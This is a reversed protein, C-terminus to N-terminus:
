KILGKIEARCKIGGAVLETVIEIARKSDGEFVLCEGNSSAFNLLLKAQKYTFGLVTIMTKIKNNVHEFLQDNEIYVALKEASSGKCGCDEETKM